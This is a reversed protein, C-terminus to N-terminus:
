IAFLWPLFRGEEEQMTWCAHLSETHGHKILESPSCLEAGLVKGLNWMGRLHATGKVARFLGKPKPFQSTSLPHEVREWLTDFDSQIRPKNTLTCISLWARNNCPHLCVKTVAPIEPLRNHSYPLPLSCQQAWCGRYWRLRFCKESPIHSSATECCVSTADGWDAWLCWARERPCSFFFSTRLEKGQWVKLTPLPPDTNGYSRREVIEAGM